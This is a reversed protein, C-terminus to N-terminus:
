DGTFQAARWEDMSITNLQEADFNKSNIHRRLATKLHTYLEVVEQSDTVKAKEVVLRLAFQDQTDIETGDHHKLAAALKVILERCPGDLYVQSISAIDVKSSM